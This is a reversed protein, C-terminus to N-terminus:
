SADGPPSRRTTTRRTPARKATTRRATSRKAPSRKATSRKAAKRRAQPRKSAARKGRKAPAPLLLGAATRPDARGAATLSARQFPIVKNRKKFSTQEVTVLGAEILNALMHEFSRRDVDDGPFTELHLRGTAQGDARALAALIRAVHTQEDASPARFAVAICANPACIDCVGCPERHDAQDGFHDILHVMRCGRAGAFRVMAQLQAEKHARQAAYGASWDPSGKRIEDDGSLQAGGHVLLKELATEFGERAARGRRKNLGARATPTTPLKAFIAALATPEPYDRAHFFEHTKRDVYAHMLVAAAPRGDRGARGIEQYYGELSGPLAAHIITRVDAKDIGMGFATTAVIVEREGSLFATQVRDREENGMGAHYAAALRPGLALALEEASKRTGAYVIAPRRSRDALLERIAAAREGPNKELVEIALNTRRFGHIFRTARHLGLQAVIDDQVTPTATATLAIIPAPRLAPLRQGLMRYDPRFDHGWQSICHAEDVAILAPTRRALLEPFGPVRLREPAIFLFDLEGALYDVCAQRSEARGRGSHIRESRFGQASLRTSQDEMLAILPSIVLTTGGRAIGPLQYCLSKGAGTPMVLLLDRGETAARCVAEQYPRFAPFGFRSRLLGRLDDPHTVSRPPAPARPSASHENSRDRSPPELPLARQQPAVRARPPPPADDEPWLNAPPPDDAPP